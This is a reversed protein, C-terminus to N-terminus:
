TIGVGGTSVMNDFVVGRAALSDLDPTKIGSHGYMNLVMASLQDAVVFLINPQNM